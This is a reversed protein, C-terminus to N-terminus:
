PTKPTKETQAPAAPVVGGQLAAAIGKELVEPKYPLKATLERLLHSRKLFLLGFSANMAPGYTQGWDFPGMPYRDWTGSRTQNTVLIEAGWRYWDKGGITPLDYLMALRELSWLYYLDTMPVLRTMAGAPEGIFQSEAAFGSLVHADPAAAAVEKEPRLGERLALGLLGVATMSRVSKRRTGVPWREWGRSYFWTGDPNQTNEFRQAALRFTTGLPLGHRRAAWLALIAFQTNSNDACGGFLRHTIRAGEDTPPYPPIPEEWAALKAPDQFVTLVKFDSPIAPQAKKDGAAEEWQRLLDALTEVNKASLTPCRYCWGGSRVQGAILRLGLSRIAAKDQPDGLRDFFLLTLSLEYTKDLKSLHPRMWEAAKRVVPDDPPVGAELLALAPLATSGFPHDKSWPEWFGTKAQTRKLFAVAKDIAQDVKAQEDKSLPLPKAQAGAAVALVLGLVVALRRLVAISRDSM